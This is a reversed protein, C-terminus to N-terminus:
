YSKVNDILWDGGSKVMTVVVRNQFIAPSGSAKVSSQNVFVLVRVKDKSADQVATNLVNATVVAKTKVAGGPTGNPGNTLLEFTKLYQTRYAPTLFQASRDRDADM